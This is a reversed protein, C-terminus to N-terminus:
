KRMLEIATELCDDILKKGQAGQWNVSLADIRGLEFHVNARIFERIGAESSVLEDASIAKSELKNAMVSVWEQFIVNSLFTELIEIIRDGNLNENWKNELDQYEEVSDILEAMTDIEASRVVADSIEAGDGSFEDILGAVVDVPNRGILHDLGIRKLAENLGHTAVDTFFGGIGQAAARSRSIANNGSGTKAKIGGSPAGGGVFGGVGGGGQGATAKFYAGMVGAPSFSPSDGGAALGSARRKASSWSNGSPASRISSTGM